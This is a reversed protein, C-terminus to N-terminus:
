TDLDFTATAHPRMPLSPCSFPSGDLAFKDTTPLQDFQLSNHAGISSLSQRGQRTQYRQSRSPNPSPRCIEYYRKLVPFSPLLPHLSPFIILISNLAGISDRFSRKRARCTSPQETRKLLFDACSCVRFVFSLSCLFCVSFILFFLEWCVWVFFGFWLFSFFVGLVGLFLFVWGNPFTRLHGRVFGAWRPLRSGVHVL